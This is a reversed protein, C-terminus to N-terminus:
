SSNCAGDPSGENGSREVWLSFEGPAVITQFMFFSCFASRAVLPYTHPKNWVRKDGKEERVSEM